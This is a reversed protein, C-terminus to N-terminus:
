QPLGIRRVIDAFRSDARLSDWRPELKLFQIQFSHQKCAEELWAFAQDKEGLGAYVLAKSYAQEPSDKLENLVAGAEAKKGSVGYAHGLGGMILPWESSEKSPLGKQFAAIAQDVMGKQEYAAPLFIRVPPFNPDLELTKQFQEIAQDYNRTFYLSIGLAFNGTLSVPDLELARKREAIMESDRGMVMLYGSYWQHAVAYRPDLEIARKYEKEAGAWDWDYTSLVRALSTHAEALTEDLELARSAAAKAKAMKEVLPLANGPVLYCDALGSYALAFGPDIQIAQNFYDTAKKLADGTRKNWYFRGKLYLQYAENSETYRTSLGKKEGSVKLKLTEVIERAIERQTALLDSMKREYHEGWLLKNYRVDVLEASITLSDGRQVIRGSLVANVGLEQGAKVPDIEKGKYRLVSSTPSVKLDPLQSLRYLLSEALGDSLYDTDAETSKNQFPLVAISDIAVTPNRSHLYTGVGVVATIILVLTLLSGLKHQRIESVVYEASSTSRALNVSASPGSSTSGQSQLEPTLTREIEADVERKRKLNRLDILMDRATQYREDRDKTLAKTVIRELEAPVDNAYRALPAPQKGLILSITEAVSEGHFALRGSVMEYLMAGLSWIDTRADVRLGRAQEPSMYPATGVVSGPKTEVQDQDQERHTETYKAIGFDLVKVLGDARLMVNEPKIDRHVIGAEHAAALAGAVQTAVELATSVPLEGQALRGRLTIGDIFETAIFNQGEFDGIEYITLINPHNLASAALAEKRFRRIREDEAADYFSLLKVAVPRNLREDHALYVKGMGGAGLLKVVQYPGIKAIDADKMNAKVLLRTAEEVMPGGIFSEPVVHALLSEVEARLQQDGGCVDNLFAPREAPDRELAAAFLRDIEKWRQPEM